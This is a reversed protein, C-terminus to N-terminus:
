GNLGYKGIAWDPRALETELHNTREWQTMSEIHKRANWTWSPLVVRKKFEDQYEYNIRINPELWRYASSILGSEMMTIIQQGTYMRPTQPPIEKEHLQKIYQVLAFTDEHLELLSCTTVDDGMWEVQSTIKANFLHTMRYMHDIYGAVFIESPHIQAYISVGREFTINMMQYPIDKYFHNSRTITTTKHHRIDAADYFLEEGVRKLTDLLTGEVDVMVRGNSLLWQWEDDIYPRM